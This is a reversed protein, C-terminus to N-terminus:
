ITFRFFLLKKTMQIKNAPQRISKDNSIQLKVNLCFVIDSNVKM